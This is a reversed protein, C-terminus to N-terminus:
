QRAGELAETREVCTGCKGCPEAEGLYCSWTQVDYDIGLKLGLQVIQGKKWLLFPAYVSVPEYNGAKIAAEFKDIFDPRCDPYIAHDGAHVAVAIRDCGRSIAYAGAVSMMIM